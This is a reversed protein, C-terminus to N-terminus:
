PPERRAASRAARGALLRRDGRRETGTADLVALADAVFEAEDYAAGDQPRDSRGSGRGDFVVVRFHRALYPIQCKWQAAHVLSWTPLLLVTQSGDGFREWHIRIGDREIFGDEDPERARLM